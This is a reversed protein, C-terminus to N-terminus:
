SVFLSVLVPVGFMVIALAIASVAADRNSVPRM